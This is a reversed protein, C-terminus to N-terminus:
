GAFRYGNTGNNVPLSDFDLGTAERLANCLAASVPVTSIEGIGRAGFPGDALPEEIIVVEIPPVQHAKLLGLGALGRTEPRGEVVKVSESVAYGLGMVVGGIIQGSLAAPNLAKGADHAAVINLIRFTKAENDAEVLVGHAAYSYGFHSRFGEAGAMSAECTRPADFRYEFSFPAKEIQDIYEWISIDRFGPVKAARMALKEMFRAVGHRVANGSMFTQRSASTVGAPPATATDGPDIEVQELPLGSTEAAIQRLINYLGQGIDSAGTHVVLKHRGPSISVRVATTDRPSNNGLSINKHAIAVAFARKKTPNAANFEAIAAADKRSLAAEFAKRLGAADKAIEGLGMRKGNEVMNIRRVEEPPMGLKAALRDIMSELVFCAQNVGFGRMAGAILNNTHVGRVRVDHSEWEYPGLAHTAFRTLVIQSLSAYPGIDSLAELEINRFRGDKSASITVGVEFPHKKTSCLISEERDMRYKCPRKTLLAALASYPQTTLDEKGGFGGGAYTFRVDVAKEPLGLISAIESRDAHVNQTASYVTVHPSGDEEERYKAVSCEPEMYAHEIPVTTFNGSVSVGESGGDTKEPPNASRLRLDCYVNGSGHLPIANDAIADAASFIASLKGYEVKILAAAAIAQDRTAAAVIAVADGAFRVRDHCLVPQDRRIIGFEKEGPLDKHLIVKVVGHAAAAEGADISLIRAHAEGSRKVAVHLMEPYEIDDAYRATGALKPESDPRVPSRGVIRTEGDDPTRPHWDRNGAVSEVIPIYGTCRCIHGALAAKVEDRSPEENAALKAELSCAIGPFCFGCQVAGAEHMRRSHASLAPSNIWAATTVSAGDMAALKVACSKKAAGDVIVTCAGCFGKNCGCKVDKQKAEDRLFDLLSLKSGEDLERTFVIGNVTLTIIM